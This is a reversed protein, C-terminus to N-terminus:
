FYGEGANDPDMHHGVRAMCKVGVAGPGEGAKRRGPLDVGAAM